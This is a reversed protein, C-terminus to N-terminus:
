CRAHSRFHARDDRGKLPWQKRGETKARERERERDPTLFAVADLCLVPCKTVSISDRYKACLVGQYDLENRWEWTECWSRVLVVPTASVRLPQSDAGGGWVGHLCALLSALLCSLSFSKFRGRHGVARAFPLSLSHYTGSGTRAHAGPPPPPPHARSGKQSHPLFSLPCTTFSPFM